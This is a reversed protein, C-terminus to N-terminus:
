EDRKFGMETHKAPSPLEDGKKVTLKVKKGRLYYLVVNASLSVILLFSYICLMNKTVYM